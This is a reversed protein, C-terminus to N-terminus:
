GMRDQAKMLKAHHAKNVLVPGLVGLPDYIQAIVSLIKRKSVQDAEPSNIRFLLVDEKSDWLVGLTKSSAQEDLVLLDDTKGSDKIHQLIRSNNSRWKRLPFKRSELLTSVQTRLEVAEELTNAGTLLDDIYFDERIITAARPFKVLAEIAIQKM